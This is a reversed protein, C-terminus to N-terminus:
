RRRGRASGPNMTASLSVVGARDRVLVRAPVEEALLEAVDLADARNHCWAVVGWKGGDRPWSAQVLYLSLDTRPDSWQDDFREDCPTHEVM